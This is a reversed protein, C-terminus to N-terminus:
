AEVGAARGVPPAVGELPGELETLRVLDDRYHARLLELLEADPPELEHSDAARNWLNIRFKAARYRARIRNRLGGPLGNWVERLVPTGRVLGPLRQPDLRRFRRRSARTGYRIHLNSPVHDRDVGLFGWLARLVSVPDRALADTSAIFLRSRPFVSLYGGLLRGYEGATVYSTTGKPAIRGEELAAPSLSERIAEDLSRHEHGRAVELWYHSIAREVPDRLLLILKVDPFLSAIRRPIVLEPSERALQMTSEEWVVPGGLYQPTVKGWLRDAPAGFFAYHAYDEWGGFFVRDVSFFPQEKTAPLYLDPHTRLYEFLSTTGAKVAGIGIFDLGKARMNLCYASSAPAEVGGLM